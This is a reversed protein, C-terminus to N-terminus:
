NTGLVMHLPADERFAPVGPPFSCFPGANRTWVLYEPIFRSVDDLTSARVTVIEPVDAIQAFIHSGCERCFNRVVTSGDDSQTRCFSLAEKSCEFADRHLVMLPSGCAGGAKRCQRCYCIGQSIPPLSVTYRVKECLCGGSVYTM